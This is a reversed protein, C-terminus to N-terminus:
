LWESFGQNRLRQRLRSLRARLLHPDTKLKQAIDVTSFGALRQELLHRDEPNLGSLLHQVADNVLANAAPDDDPNHSAILSEASEDNDDTTPGLQQERQLRRWSRAVKRRIVTLALGLLQQPCSVDYKGQRLGPLLERHVSQVLDLSDLHPRLWPGLLVRAATRLRPEYQQLVQILATEDGAQVGALLVEIENPQEASSMGELM